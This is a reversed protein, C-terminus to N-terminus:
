LSVVLALWEMTSRAPSSGAVGAIRVRHEGLQAVPGSGGHPPEAPKLLTYRLGRANSLQDVHM